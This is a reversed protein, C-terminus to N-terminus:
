ETNQVVIRQIKRKAADSVVNVTTVKRDLRDFIGKNSGIRHTSGTEKVQAFTAAAASAAGASQTSKADSSRTKLVVRRNTFRATPTTATPQVAMRTPSTSPSNALLEDEDMDYAIHHQQHHKKDAATTPMTKAAAPPASPQQQKVVPKVVATTPRKSEPFVKATPINTRGGGVGDSPPMKKLVIPSKKHNDSVATGTTLPKTAIAANKNNSDSGEGASVAATNKLDEAAKRRRM